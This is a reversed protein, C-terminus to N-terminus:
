QWHVAAKLLEPQQLLAALQRGEVVCAARGDPRVTCVANKGFAAAMLAQRSPAPEALEVPAWTAPHPGGALCLTRADLVQLVPGHVTAGAPAPAAGCAPASDAPRGLSALLVFAAIPIGQWGM